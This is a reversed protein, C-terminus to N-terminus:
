LHKVLNTFTGTINGGFLSFRGGKEAEYQVNDRTFACVMDRDTLSRYLDDVRCKFTEKHTLNRCKIKVGHANGNTSVVPQALKSKM